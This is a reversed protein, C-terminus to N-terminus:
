FWSRTQLPKLIKNFPNYPYTLTVTKTFPAEHFYNYNQLREYEMPPFKRNM